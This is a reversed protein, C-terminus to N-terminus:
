GRRLDFGAEGGALGFHALLLKGSEPIVRAHPHFKAVTDSRVCGRLWTSFHMVCSLSDFNTQLILEPLVFFGRLIDVSGVGELRTSASGAAMVRCCHFHDASAPM